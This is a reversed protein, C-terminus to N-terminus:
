RRRPLASFYRILPARGSDFAFDSENMTIDAPAARRTDFPISTRPRRATSFASDAGASPAPAKQDADSRQADHEIVQIIGSIARSSHRQITSFEDDTDRDFHLGNM